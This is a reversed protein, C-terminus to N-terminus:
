FTIVEYGDEVLSRVSPHGEFDDITVLGADNVADTAGFAGACFDCVGVDGKVQSYLEHYDHDPDELLEVWQTAAGDFIVEVEDGAEVFEKAAELANFIRGQNEHGETGALIMIAEKTM